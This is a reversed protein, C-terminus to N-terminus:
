TYQMKLVSCLVGCAGAVNRLENGLRESLRKMTDDSVSGETSRQTNARNCAGNAYQGGRVWHKQGAGDEM